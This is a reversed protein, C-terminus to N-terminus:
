DRSHPVRIRRVPAADFWGCRRDRGTTVGREGGIRRLAEGDEDFL